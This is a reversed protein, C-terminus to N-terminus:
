LVRSLADLYPQSFACRLTDALPLCRRCAAAFAQEDALSMGALEPEASSLARLAARLSGSALLAARAASARARARLTAHDLEADAARVLASFSKQDSAPVSQWLAAALERVAPSVARAGTGAVPAFALQAAALLDIADREALVAAVIYEPRALWLAHAMGYLLASSGQAVSRKAIVIPPHAAVAQAWTGPAASVYVAVEPLQLMRTAHAYANAIPSYSIRAIRDRETVGHAGPSSRLRPVVRAYSWLRALLVELESSMGPGAARPLAGAPWLGAHFEVAPPPQVDPEFTALLEQLVHQEADPAAGEHLAHLERLADTRWPEACVLERLAARRSIPDAHVSAHSASSPVVPESDSVSDSDSDSDSGSDSVSDSASGSDSGTVTNSIAQPARAALANLAVQVEGGLESLEERRALELAALLRAQAAGPDGILALVSSLRLACRVKDEAAWLAEIRAELQASFAALMEGRAGAPQAAALAMIREDLEFRESLQNARAFLEFARQPQRLPGACLEAADQLARLRARPERMHEALREYCPVLAELRGAQRAVREIAKWAVGASPAIEFADLYRALARQPQEASELWRGARYLLARRGHPGTAADILADYTAVAADVNRAGLALREVLLLPEASAPWRLAGARAIDLALAADGLVREAHLACWAYVRAGIEPPCRDGIAQCRALAWRPEGLALLVGLAHRVHQADDSREAVLERVHLEARELDALRQAAIVSMLVLLARRREADREGELIRADVALLRAADGAQLLLEHLRDLAEACHPDADLVRHLTRVEAAFSGFRRHEAGLALLRPVRQGQAAHAVALDLARLVLAADGTRRALAAARAALEPDPRGQEECLRLALEAAAAFAGLAELRELAALAARETDPGAIASLAAHASALLAPADEREIALQVHAARAVADHPLVALWADLAAREAAPQGAKRALAHMAAFLAQSGGCTELLAHLGGAASRTDTLAAHHRLLMWAADAAQPDNELALSASRAAHEPRGAAEETRALEALVRARPRGEPTYAARLALARAARQRDGLQRAARELRAIALRDEPDFALLTESTAAVAKADERVTHVACLRTLLRLREQREGCQDVQDELFTALAIADRSLGHLTELRERVAPETIGLALAERLLETQRPWHDPLDPLLAAVRCCLRARSETDAQALAREAEALQAGQEHVRASLRAIADAASAALADRLGLRERQQWAALALHPNSLRLEALEALEALLDAAVRPSRQLAAATAARLGHALLALERPTRAHARLADLAAREDGDLLLAEFLLWLGSEAQGETHPKGQLTMLGARRLWYARQADPCATAIDELVVARFEPAELAALDEDLSRYVLDFGPAADFVELLLQAALEPRGAGEAREAAALRLRQRQADDPAHAAAEALVAIAGLRKGAADLASAYEYATPADAPRLAFAQALLALARDRSADDLSAAGLRAHANAGDPQGRAQLLAAVQEHAESSAVDDAAAECLAELCTDFDGASRAIRARLRQADARETPIQAAHAAATAYRAALDAHGLLHCHLAAQQLVSSDLPDAAAAERFADCAREISGLGSQCADALAAYARAREPGPAGDRELDRVRQELASVADDIRISPQPLRPLQSAELAAASTEAMGPDLRVRPARLAPAAALPDRRPETKAEPEFQVPARPAPEPARALDLPQTAARGPPLLRLLGARLLAAIRPAAAPHKALVTSVAPRVPVEGLDAWERATREHPGGAWDLRHNLHAGVVAAEENGAARCLADLLLAPLPIAPARILAPQAPEFAAPPLANAHADRLARTLRDVLAARRLHRLEVDSLVGHQVLLDGVSRQERQAAGGYRAIASEPVRGTQVLVEELSEDGRGPAIDVVDGSALFLAREGFAVRGTARRAALALLSAAHSSTPLLARDM